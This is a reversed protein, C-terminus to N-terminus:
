YNTLQFDSVESTQEVWAGHPGGEKVTLSGNDRLVGVRGTAADVEINAAGGTQDIWGAFLNGHKVSAIGNTFVVGLYDGSLDVDKVDTTQEVWAGYLGGEKVVLSGNDRVVAIRGLGAELELNAANGLQETWPAWLNDQKVFAKGDNTIVGIYTGSLEVERANTAQEVWTGQLGGEKVFVKGDTALVAVRGATSELAFDRVNNAMHLWGQFLNGQKVYLDGGPTLVGVMDGHSESRAMGGGHVETWQAFLNGEKVAAKSNAFHVGIRPTAPRVPDTLGIPSVFASIRQGAVFQGVRGGGTEFRVTSNMPGTGGFNGNITRITGNTHVTDVLGVHEAWGNGNYGFVVADGIQPVYNPDVHLTGKQQGYLYFSGAGANLRDVNLGSNGWVWRAFDACWAHRAECSGAFGRGGLSNTSCTQKGLNAAALDRVDTRTDAAAVPVAGLMGVVAAVLISVLSRKTKM